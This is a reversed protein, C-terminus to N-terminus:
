SPSEKRTIRYKRMYKRACIRCRHHKRGQKDTWIYGNAGDLRHGAACYGRRRPTKRRRALRAEYCRRCKVQGTTRVNSPVYAHGLPCQDRDIGPRGQTAVLRHHYPNQCGFGACPSDNVLFGDAEKGTLKVHLWRPLRWQRGDRKFVVANGSRAVSPHFLLCRDTDELLEALVEDPDIATM